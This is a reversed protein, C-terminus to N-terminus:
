LFYIRMQERIFMVEKSATIQIRGRGPPYIVYFDTMDALGVSLLHGRFQENEKKRLFGGLVDFSAFITNNFVQSM